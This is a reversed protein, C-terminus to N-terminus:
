YWGAFCLGRSSVYKSKNKSLKWLRYYYSRVLVSSRCLKLKNKICKIFIIGFMLSSDGYRANLVMTHNPELVKIHKIIKDELTANM